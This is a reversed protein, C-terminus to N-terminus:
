GRTDDFTVPFGPNFGRYIYTYIYLYISTKPPFDDFEVVLHPIWQWTQGSPLAMSTKMPYSSHESTSPKFMNVVDLIVLDHGTYKKSHTSAVWKVSATKQVQRCHQIELAKQSTHSLCTNSTKISHNVELKGDLVEM